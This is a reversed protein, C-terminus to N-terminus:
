EFASELLSDKRYTPYKTVLAAGRNGTLEFSFSAGPELHRPPVNRLYTFSPRISPVCLTTSLVAGLGAGVERVTNTRLCGPLRPLSHVLNGVTLPQFTAPVDEGRQREGLLSGASFM